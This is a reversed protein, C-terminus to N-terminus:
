FHQSILWTSLNLCHAIFMIIIYTVSSCHRCFASMPLLCCDLLVQMDTHIVRGNPPEAFLGSDNQHQIIWNLTIAIKVDDVALYPKAKQFTLVVFASLRYAFSVNVPFNCPVNEWYCFPEYINLRM